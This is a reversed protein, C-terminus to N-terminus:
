FGGLNFLYGITIIGLTTIGFFIALLPWRMAKKLILAEPLSLGVTAMMFAMATGFPVGKAVLAEMIPIVGVANSYLPVALLAALPVSWWSKNQLYKQFFNKPVFGHILAGLAIGVLIYGLLSKTIQWGEDWWNKILEKFEVKPQIITSSITGKNKLAEKKLSIISPDLFRDLNFRDLILGSLIGILVGASVYIIVVKLGFLGAFIALSAENVLPSTILFSLTVGIPIGASIFGIFFPISSCSCFPTIVGFLAALLYDLGYWNRSTIFDRLKEVPLYYRLVAMLYNIIILLIFIKITDFIFFNVAKGVYSTPQLGLLNYSTLNALQQIPSFISM